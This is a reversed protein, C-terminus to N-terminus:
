LEGRYVDGTLYEIEFYERGDMEFQQEDFILGANREDEEEDDDPNKKNM